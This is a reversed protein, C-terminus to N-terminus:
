LRVMKVPLDFTHLFTDIRELRENTHPRVCEMPNDIGLQAYKNFGLRHYPLIEVGKITGANRNQRELFRMTQRLFPRQDNMSRILPIRVTVAAGANLLRGLNALIRDNSVGTLERHREPNIHKLDFLFLDTYPIL